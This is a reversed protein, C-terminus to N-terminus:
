IVLGNKVSLGRTRAVKVAARYYYRRESDHKSAEHEKALIARLQLDTANECFKTFETYKSM